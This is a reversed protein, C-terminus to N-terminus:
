RIILGLPIPRESESHDTNRDSIWLSRVNNLLIQASGGGDLNVANVMGLEECIRAMDSLSAGCSDKGPVHGLKAAGEAWLLMPKGDRDAGLAIRAARAKKFDLPYLSPPFAIRRIGKINFFRSIFKETKVGNRVISNGVQIGFQVDEMGEYTVTDGPKVSCGGRPCLVFGSAPIPARGNRVAVVRRGIIVLGKGGPPTRARDPRSYFSANEGHIYTTNGIKVRLNQLRPSEITVSGDNRVLLAERSFMPPQEVVGNKVLLGFPAGVHDYVTACDFPDMVFFSANVKLKAEPESETLFGAGNGVPIITTIPLRGRVIRICDEAQLRNWLEETPTDRFSIKEGLVMVGRRLAMAAVVLPDKTQDAYRNMLEQPVQVSEVLRFMVLNGFVWHAAPILYQRYIHQFCEFAKESSAPRFFDLESWNEFRVLQVRQIERGSGPFINVESHLAM